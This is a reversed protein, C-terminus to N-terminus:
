RRRAASKPRMMRNKKGKMSSARGRINASKPRLMRRKNSSQLVSTSHSKIMLDKKVQRGLSDLDDEETDNMLGALNARLLIDRVDNTHELSRVDAAIELSMPKKSIILSNKNEKESDINKTSISSSSSLASSSSSTNFSMTNSIEKEMNLLKREMDTMEVAYRKTAERTVRLEATKKHDSMMWRRTISKLAKVEVKTDALKKKYFDAYHSNKNALDRITERNLKKGNDDTITTSRNESKEALHFLRNYEVKLRHLWPLYFYTVLILIFFFLVFLFLFLFYTPFQLFVFFCFFLSAVVLFITASFVFLLYFVDRKTVYTGYM